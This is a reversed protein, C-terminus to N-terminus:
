LGPIQRHAFDDESGIVMVRSSYLIEMIFPDRRTKRFNFEELSFVAYNIERGIKEQEEKIMLQLEQLVIEGIILVDVDDKGPRLGRVFKGSFMVFDIEGLKKRNKRIKRGLGTSKAVMQQLEQFYLYRKNLSYYLRNGRQESKLLGCGVLRDLERRVANIEEKVLRTIERVYYMQDDHTFFLELMKVRVRSVIIDQLTTM